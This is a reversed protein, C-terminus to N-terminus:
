EGESKEPAFRTEAEFTTMGFTKKFDVAVFEEWVRLSDGGAYASALASHIGTGFNLHRGQTKPFLGQRKYADIQRCQKWDQM